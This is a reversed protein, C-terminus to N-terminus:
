LQVFVSVVIPRADDPLPLMAEKTPTSLLVVGEMAAIDIIGDALPQVPVVSCKVM